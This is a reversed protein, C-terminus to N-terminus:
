GRDRLYKEVGTARAAAAERDRIVQKAVYKAVGTSPNAGQKELYKAVGTKNAGMKDLYKEVGTAGGAYAEGAAASSKSKGAGKKNYLFFVGVAALALIGIFSNSSSESGAQENVVVAAESSEVAVAGTNKAPADVGPAGSDHKYNTDAFVVKPEYNAAPFKPDHEAKADAAKAAPSLASPAGAGASPDSYVVKPQFDTAPYDTGAFAAGSVVLMASALTKILLHKNVNDV